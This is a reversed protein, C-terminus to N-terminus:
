PKISKGAKFVEVKAGGGQALFGRTQATVPHAGFPHYVVRMRKGSPLTGSTADVRLFVVKGEVRVRDSDRVLDLESLVRGEEIRTADSALERCRARHLDGISRAQINRHTVM